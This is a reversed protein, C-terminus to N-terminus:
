YVKIACELKTERMLRMLEKILSQERYTKDRLGYGNVHFQCAFEKDYKGLSEKAIRVMKGFFEHIYNINVGNYRTMHAIRTGMAEDLLVDLFTRENEVLAFENDLIEFIKEAPLCYAKNECMFIQVNMSDVNNKKKM